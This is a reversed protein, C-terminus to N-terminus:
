TLFPPKHQTLRPRSLWQHLSFPYPHFYVSQPLLHHKIRCTGRHPIAKLHSFVFQCVMLYELCPIVILRDPAGASLEDLRHRTEALYARYINSSKKEPFDIDEFQMSGVGIIFSVFQNTNM